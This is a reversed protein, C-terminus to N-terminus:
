PREGQSSFKTFDANFTLAGSRSSLTVTREITKGGFSMTVQYSGPALNVSSSNSSLNIEMKKDGNVQQIHAIAPFHSTRLTFRVTKEERTLTYNFRNKKGPSAEISTTLTKFGSRRLELTHSGPPVKFGRRRSNLDNTTGVERGDIMVQAAPESIIFVPVDAMSQPEPAPKVSEPPTSKNVSEPASYGEKVPQDGTPNGTKPTSPISAPKERDVGHYDSSNLARDVVAVAPGSPKHRSPPESPKKTVVRSSYAKKALKVKPPPTKIDYSKVSSEKKTDIPREPRKFRPLETVPDAKPSPSATAPLEAPDQKEVSAIVPPRKAVKTQRQSKRTKKPKPIDMSTTYAVEEMFERSMKALGFYLFAAVVLLLGGAWILIRRPSRQHYSGAPPFAMTHADMRRYNARKDAARQHRAGGSSHGGGTPVKPRRYDWARPPQSKPASPPVRGPRPPQHRTAIQTPMRHNPVRMTSQIETGLAQRLTAVETQHEADIMRTRANQHRATPLSAPRNARKTVENRFKVNLERLRADFQEPAHFFRELEVHSEIFGFERLFGDLAEGLSQANAFRDEAKLNMGKVIINSLSRPIEPLIKNPALYRGAMIKSIVDPTTNGIFPLIGCIIEYHLVALSYIDTRHDMDRGRIQEPSMYSPSGMMTGTMTVDSRRLNKSIGFDMLKIRGDTLVMINEPKIDRHVIGKSHAYQLARCIERAILTGVIPHLASNSFKQVYQALNKGKLVESVIWLQSSNEGSFDFVKIINPHDLQSVARAEQHFRQRIDAHQTLHAHLIKIAVRRGLKEDIAVYVSAMGGEGILGKIRYRDGLIQNRM